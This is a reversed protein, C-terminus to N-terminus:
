LLGEMMYDYGRFVTMKLSNFYFPTMAETITLEQERKMTIMSGRYRVNGHAVADGDARNSSVDSKLMACRIFGPKLFQEFKQLHLFTGYMMEWGEENCVLVRMKDGICILGIYEAAIEKISEEIM